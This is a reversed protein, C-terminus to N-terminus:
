PNKKPRAQWLGCYNTKEVLRGTPPIEISNDSSVYRLKPNAQCILGVEYETVQSTKNNLPNIKITVLSNVTPAVNSCTACRIKFIKKGEPTIRPSLRVVPQGPIELSLSKM